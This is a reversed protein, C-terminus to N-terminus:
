DSILRMLSRPIQAGDLETKSFNKQLKLQANILYPRLVLEKTTSDLWRSTKMTV